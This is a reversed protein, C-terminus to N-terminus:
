EYSRTVWMSTPEEWTFNSKHFFILVHTLTTGLSPKSRFKYDFRESGPV